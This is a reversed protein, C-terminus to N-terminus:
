KQTSNEADIQAATEFARNIFTAVDISTWKDDLCISHVGEVSDVFLTPTGDSDEGAYVEVDGDEALEAAKNALISINEAVDEDALRMYFSEADGVGEIFATVAFCDCEDSIVRDVSFKVKAM